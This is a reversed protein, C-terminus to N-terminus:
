LLVIFEDGAKVNGNASPIVDAYDDSNTIVVPSAVSYGAATIKAIDFELLLDGKKVKDGQAKKKTFGDGNLKVTDMGIHILIEAGKDTQIGLAHGTPFFTTITGDAPAYLKGESPIIVLGKGMAESAFVEDPAESLPKAEGTLPSVINEAKDTGDSVAAETNKKKAPADTYFLLECVFGAAVCALSVVVSVIAGFTNNNATDIYATYGFVGTGAMQYAQVGFAGLVGGAIGAIVCTRIFPWKKPLTLGYIAPETIGALGSVVSAPALGKIKKDKLEEALDILYTIEEPTFDLLKLFDRGYLNM